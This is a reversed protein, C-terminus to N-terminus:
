GILSGGWFFKEVTITHNLSGPVTPSARNWFSNVVTLCLDNTLSSIKRSAPRDARSPMIGLILYDKENIRLFAAPGEAPCLNQLAFM